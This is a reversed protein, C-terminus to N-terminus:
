GCPSPAWALPGGEGGEWPQFHRGSVLTLAERHRGAQNYLACLEVSLGDRHQVLTLHRELELLRRAPSRRLRKWLQDREYLLRTDGLNAQIAKDYATTARAPERRINFYGIGLNRWVISFEPDIKAAREWMRIAEQHRRRDYLLNGLYYPARPDAPNARMAAELIAV